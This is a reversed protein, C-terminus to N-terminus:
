ATAAPSAAASRTPTPWRRRSSVVGEERAREREGGERADLGAGDVPGGGRVRERADRVAGDVDEDVVRPPALDPADSPPDAITTAKIQKPPSLPHQIPPSQPQSAPPQHTSTAPPPVLYTDLSICFLHIRFNRETQVASNHGGRKTTHDCCSQSTAM